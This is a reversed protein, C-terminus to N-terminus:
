TPWQRLYRISFWYSIQALVSPRNWSHQCLGPLVKTGLFAGVKYSILNRTRDQSYQSWEQWTNVWVLSWDSQMVASYLHFSEGSNSCDRSFDKVQAHRDWHRILLNRHCYLGPFSDESFSPVDWWAKPGPCSSDSFSVVGACGNDVEEWQQQHRSLRSIPMSKSMLSSLRSTSFFPIILVPIKLILPMIRSLGYNEPCIWLSKLFFKQPHSSSSRNVFSFM